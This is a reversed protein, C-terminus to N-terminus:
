ISIVLFRINKKARVGINILNKCYLTVSFTEKKINNDGPCYICNVATRTSIENDEVNM